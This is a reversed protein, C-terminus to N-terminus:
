SIAALGRQRAADREAEGVIGGQVAGEADADIVAIDAAADADRKRPSSRRPFSARL